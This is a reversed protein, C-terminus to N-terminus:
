LLQARSEKGGVASNSVVHDNRLACPESNDPDLTTFEPELNCQARTLRAKVRGVHGLAGTRRFTGIHDNGCCRCNFRYLAPRVVILTAAHETRGAALNM